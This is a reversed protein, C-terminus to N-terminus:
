WELRAVDSLYAVGAAAPFEELFAPFNRGYQTLCPETPFHEHIFQDAAYAFFRPDVLRRVVPFVAELATALNILSANRYISLRQEPTLGDACIADVVGRTAEGGVFRRFDAQLEDLSLVPARLKFIRRRRRKTSSRTSHPCTM